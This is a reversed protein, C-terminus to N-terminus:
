FYLVYGHQTNNLYLYVYGGYLTNNYHGVNMAIASVCLGQGYAGYGTNPYPTTTPYGPYGYGGGPYQTGYPSGVTVGPIRGYLAQNYIDQQTTPSIMLMGSGSATNMSQAYYSGYPSQPYQSPIPFTGTPYGSYPYQQTQQVPTLSMQITGDVGTRSLTQGYGAAYGGSGVVMQGVAQNSSPVYGGVVNASDMYINQFAFPIQQNIPVCTGNGLVGGPGTIVGGGSTIPASSNNGGCGTLAVSAALALVLPGGMFVASGRKFLNHKM